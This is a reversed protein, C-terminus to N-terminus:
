LIRKRNHGNRHNGLVPEPDGELHAKMEAKLAREAVAKKLGEILKGSRFVDRPDEGGLLEDLLKDSIHATQKAM